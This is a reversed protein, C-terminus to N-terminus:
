PRGQQPGRCRQTGSDPPGTAHRYFLLLPLLMAIRPAQFLLRPASRGYCSQSRGLGGAVGGTVTKRLETEEEPTLGAEAILVCDIDFDDTAPEPTGHLIKLIKRAIGGQVDGASIFRDHWCSPPSVSYCSALSMHHAACVKIGMGYGLEGAVAAIGRDVKAIEELDIIESLIQFPIQYLLATESCAHVLTNGIRALMHTPLAGLVHQPAPFKVQMPQRVLPNHIM